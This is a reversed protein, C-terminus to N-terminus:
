MPFPWLVQVHPIRASQYPNFGFELGAILPPRHRSTLEYALGHAALASLPFSLLFVLNYAFLPSAGIWQLPTTILSLGLLHESLALAGEAPWFMPANWWRPTLPVAHANWWLIWTNLLPDGLDHPVVTALRAALPWTVAITLVAYVFAALLWPVLRARADAQM